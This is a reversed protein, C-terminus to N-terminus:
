ATTGLAAIVEAAARRGSLLAGEIYGCFREATETGAWHIRGCPQRLAPGLETLLGPTMLGVYCGRAWEDSLWDKDVYDLPQLAQPGFYRALSELVASKRAKEGQASWHQAPAGDIFGVLAGYSGDRPSADFVTNFPLKHSVAEGSLGAERWFPSPYAVLCKIVSGMPMRQALHFRQAPLLPQFDIRNQLAPPIACVLRAARWSQEGSRVEIQGQEHQVVHSVPASFHVRQEALLPAALHEALQPMGGEVVQHQAGGRATTLFDFSENSACYFLFGLHSLSGPEATMVSRVAIDFIERATRTRLRRQAWSALTENDWRHALEANWPQSLDISRQQKNLARIMLELELLAVPNIRPILGKYRNLADQAGRNLHLLKDGQVYQDRLTVGAQQALSALEQHASGIWQGGVDVMKGALQASCTRGGLRDRAELVQVSLGADHLQRACNLGAFGAGIIICDTM